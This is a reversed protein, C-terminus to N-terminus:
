NGFIRQKINSFQRKFWNPQKAKSALDRTDLAAAEKASEEGPNYDEIHALHV